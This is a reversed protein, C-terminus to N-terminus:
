RSGDDAFTRILGKAVAEAATRAGLKAKLREIHKRVTAESIELRSAIRKVPLGSALMALCDRERPSLSPPEAPGVNEVLLVLRSLSLCAEAERGYPLM